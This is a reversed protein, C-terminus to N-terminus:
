GINKSIDPVSILFFLPCPMFGQGGKLCVLCNILLNVAGAQGARHLNYLALLAPLAKNQPRLRIM